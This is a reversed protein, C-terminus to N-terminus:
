NFHFIFVQYALRATEMSVNIDALICTCVWQVSIDKLQADLLEFDEKNVVPGGTSLM